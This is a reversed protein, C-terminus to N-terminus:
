RKGQLKLVFYRIRFVGRSIFPLNFIMFNEIYYKFTENKYLDYFSNWHSFNFYKKNSIIKFYELADKNKKQIEEPFRDNNDVYTQFIELKIKLFLERVEDLKKFGHSIKDTGVQNNGHQRYKIYPKELYAVKGYISSMIAIWYDHLVYKSSDPLPLIKDLMSKKGLITCGTVCNYLYNLEYSNICKKIKRNLLMYDGYSPYITELNENVVELDGFVLDANKQKMKEMSKEVKEPLWIDDQDSFMYFDSKIQKLLFEFNKIVGLRKEQFHLTVRTDSKAIRELIKRTGDDSGDDSVILRINNYTQGLISNVQEKVYKEGNCTALLIDVMEM